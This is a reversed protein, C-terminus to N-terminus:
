SVRDTDGMSSLRSKVHALDRTALLSERHKDTRCTRTQGEAQGVQKAARPAVKDLAKSSSSLTASTQFTHCTARSTSCVRYCCRSLAHALPLCVVHTYPIERQRERKTEGDRQRESARESESTPVCLLLVKFMKQINISHSASSFVLPSKMAKAFRRAQRTIEAQEDSSFTAFVDYKTGVLIAM